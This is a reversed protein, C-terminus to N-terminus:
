GDSGSTIGRKARAVIVPGARVRCGPREVAQFMRGTGRTKRANSTRGNMGIVIRSGEDAGPAFSNAAPVDCLGSRPSTPGATRPTGCMKADAVRPAGPWIRTYRPDGDFKVGCNLCRVGLFCTDAGAHKACRRIRRLKKPAADGHVLNSTVAALPHRIRGRGFRCGREAGAAVTRSPPGRTTGLPSNMRDPPNACRGGPFWWRTCGRGRVRVAEGRSAPAIETFARRM